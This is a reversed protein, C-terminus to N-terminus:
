YEVDVYMQCERGGFFHLGEFVCYSPKLIQVLCEVDVYMQGGIGGIGGFFWSGCFCLVQAEFYAGFMRHSGVM